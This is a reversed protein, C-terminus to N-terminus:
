REGWEPDRKMTARLPTARFCQRSACRGFGIPSPHCMHGGPPPRSRRDAVKLFLLYTLQEVYDGDATSDERLALRPKVHPGAYERAPLVALGHGLPPRNSFNSLKDM